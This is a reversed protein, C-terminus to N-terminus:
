PTGVGGSVRHVAIRVTPQSAPLALPRITPDACRQEDTIARGACRAVILCTGTELRAVEVDCTAGIENTIASDLVSGTARLSRDPLAAREAPPDLHILAALLAGFGLVSGTVFAAGGTAKALVRSVLSSPEVSARAKVAEAEAKPLESALAVREAEIRALDHELAQVEDFLERM